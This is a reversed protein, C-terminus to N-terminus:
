AELFSGVLVWHAIWCWEHETLVLGFYAGLVLSGM